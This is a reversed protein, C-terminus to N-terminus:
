SRDAAETIGDTYLLLRTDQALTVTHQPYSSIGLGLPLGTDVELFRSTGNMLLPRLHGASAL